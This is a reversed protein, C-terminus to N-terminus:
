PRRHPAGRGPLAHGLRHRIDMVAEDRVKIWPRGLAPEIDARTGARHSDPRRSRAGLHDPEIQGRRQDLGGPM